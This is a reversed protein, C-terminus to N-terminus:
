INQLWTFFGEFKLIRIIFITSVGGLIFDIFFNLSFIYNEKEEKHIPLFDADINNSIKKDPM